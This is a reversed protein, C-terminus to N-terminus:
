HVPLSIFVDDERQREVNLRSSRNAPDSWDEQQETRFQIRRFPQGNKIVVGGDRAGLVQTKNGDPRLGHPEVATSGPSDLSVASRDLQARTVHFLLASCLVLVAAAAVQVYRSFFGQVIKVDLNPVATSALSSEIRDVLEAGVPAPTLLALEQELELFEHEEDSHHDDSHNM